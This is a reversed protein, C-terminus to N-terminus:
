EYIDDEENLWDALEDLSSEPAFKENANKYITEMAERRGSDLYEAYIKATTEPSNHRLKDQIQEMKAGNNLMFVACGHRLMHPTINKNLKCKKTLRNLLKEITNRRMPKYKSDGYLNFIFYDTDVYSLYDNMYQIILDRTQDSVFIYGTSYYKVAADPNDYDERFEIYVKNMYIERLDTIHLGIVESVRMGGDFMLALIIKDRLNEAANLLLEYEEKTIYKILKKTTKTKLMSRPTSKKKLAMESLMGKFQSNTRISNYASFENLEDNAVLFNYFGFVNSMIQNITTDTRVAQVETLNIVNEKYEPFELWMRFESLNLLVGKNIDSKRAVATKYNLGVKNLWEYYLKLSHCVNKVTNNKKKTRVLFLMYNYIEPIVKGNDDVLFYITHKNQNTINKVEM